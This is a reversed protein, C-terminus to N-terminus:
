PREQEPERMERILFSLNPEYFRRFKWKSFNEPLPITNSLSGSPFASSESVAKQLMTLYRIMEEVIKVGGPEGHGPVYTIISTDQVLNELQRTWSQPNGDGLWPHRENFLIDGAFFIKEDGALMVVDSETHAIKWELLLVNRDRGRLLLSDRFTMDPLTTRIKHSFEVMGEYYGIWLPVEEKEQETGKTLKQKEQELRGAANDIESKIEGPESEIIKSRTWFSSIINAGEFVQNGRIHDNHYHSNVVWGVKKGTLIEAAKKLDEAADPNMFPDFVLTKDGMDVIGANCIAHGGNDNNIAAWIGAGLKYITFHKSPSPEKQSINGGCSIFFFAIPIIVKMKFSPFCIKTM